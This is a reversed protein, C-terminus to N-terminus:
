VRMLSPYNKKKFGFYILYYCFQLVLNIKNRNKLNFLYFM